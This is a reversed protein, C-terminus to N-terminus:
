PETLEMVVREAKGKGGGIKRYWQGHILCFKLPLLSLNLAKLSHMRTCATRVEMTALHGPEAPGQRSPIEWVHPPPQSALIPVALNGTKASEASMAFKM